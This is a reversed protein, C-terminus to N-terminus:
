RLGLRGLGFMGALRQGGGDETDEFYLAPKTGASESSDMTFLGATNTFPVRFVDGDNTGDIKDQLSVNTLTVDFIGTAAPSTFSAAASANYDTGSGTCIVGTWLQTGHQASNGTVEGASAPSGSKNGEGWARLIPNVTVTYTAGSRSVCNFIYKAFTVTVGSYASLDVYVVAHNSFNLTGDYLQFTTLGGWNYDVQSPVSSLTAEEFTGSDDDITVDM